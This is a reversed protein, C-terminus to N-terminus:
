RMGEGVAIPPLPLREGLQLWAEWVPTKPIDYSKCTVFAEERDGPQDEM